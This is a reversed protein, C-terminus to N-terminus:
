WDLMKPPDTDRSNRRLVAVSDSLVYSVGTTIALDVIGNGDFDGIATTDPQSGTPVTTAPGFQALALPTFALTAM